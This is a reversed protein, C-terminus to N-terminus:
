SHGSSTQKPTATGAPVSPVRFVRTGPGNSRDLVPAATVVPARLWGAFYGDFGQQESCHGQEDVLSLVSVSPQTVAVLFWRNGVQYEIALASATKAMSGGVAFDVRGAEGPHGPVRMGFLTARNSRDLMIALVVRGPPVQADFFMKARVVHGIVTTATAVAADGDAITDAGRGTRTPWDLAPM